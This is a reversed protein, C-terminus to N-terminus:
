CVSIQPPLLSVMSTTMRLPGDAGQFGGGDDVSVSSVGWIRCAPAPPEGTMQAAGGDTRGRRSLVTESRSIMRLSGPVLCFQDRIGAGRHLPRDLCQGAGVLQHGLLTMTAPVLVRWRPTWPWSSPWPSGWSRLSWCMDRHCLGSCRTVMILGRQHRGRGLM